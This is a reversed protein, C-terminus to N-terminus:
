WRWGRLRLPLAAFTFQVGVLGALNTLNDILPIGASLVDPSVGM